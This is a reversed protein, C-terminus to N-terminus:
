AWRRAVLFPPWALVATRGDFILGDALTMPAMMGLICIGGFLVGSLGKGLPSREDVYRTILGHVWCLAILLIVNKLLELVM